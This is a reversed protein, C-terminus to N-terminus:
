SGPNLYSCANGKICPSLESSCVFQQGLIFPWNEGVSRKWELLFSLKELCHYQTGDSKISCGPHRPIASLSLLQMDGEHLQVFSDAKEM